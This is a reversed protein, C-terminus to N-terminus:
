TTECYPKYDPWTFDHGIHNNIDLDGGLHGFRSLAVELNGLRYDKSRDLHEQEFASKAM